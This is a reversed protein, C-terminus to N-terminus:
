SWVSMDSKWIGFGANSSSPSNGQNPNWGLNSEPLIYQNSISNPNEVSLSDSVFDSNHRSLGLSSHTGNSLSSSVPMLQSQTLGLSSSSRNENLLAISTIDQLLNTTAPTAGLTNMSNLNSTNMGGDDLFSSLHETPLGPTGGSKSSTTVAYHSTADPLFGHYEFNSGVLGSQTSIASGIRSPVGSLNPMVATNNGNIAPSMGNSYVSGQSNPYTQQQQGMIFNNNGINVALPAQTPSSSNALQNYELHKSGTNYYIQPYVSKLHAAVTSSNSYPTTGHKYHQPQPQQKVNNNYKMFSNPYRNAQNNGYSNGYNTPKKKNYMNNNANFNYSPKPKNRDDALTPVCGSSLSGSDPRKLKLARYETLYSEMDESQSLFAVSVIPGPM